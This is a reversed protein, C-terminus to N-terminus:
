KLIRKLQRLDTLIYDPTLQRISIRFNQEKLEHKIKNKLFAKKNGKYTRAILATKTKIKKGLCIGQYLQDDTYLAVSKFDLKQSFIKPNPKIIGDHPSYIRSIYKLLGLHKMIPLQYKKLGNTIICICYNRSKLYALIPRSDPFLKAKHLNSKIVKEYNFRKKIKLQSCLKKIHSDWDYKISKNKEHYWIQIVRNWIEKPKKDSLKAIERCIQMLAYNRCGSKVLTEDLDFLVIKM